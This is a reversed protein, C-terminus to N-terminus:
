SRRHLDQGWCVRRTHVSCNMAHTQMDITMRQAGGLKGDAWVSSASTSAMSGTLSGPLLVAESNQWPCRRLVVQLLLLAEQPPFDLPVVAASVAVAPQERAVVLLAEGPPREPAVVQKDRELHSGCGHM